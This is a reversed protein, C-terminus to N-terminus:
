GGAARGGAARRRFWAVANDHRETRGEELWGRSSLIERAGDLTCGSRPHERGDARHVSDVLAFGEATSDAVVIAGGARVLRATEALVPRARFAAQREDPSV